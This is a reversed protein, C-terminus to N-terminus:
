LNESQSLEDDFRDYMEYLKNTTIIILSEIDEDFDISYELNLKDLQESLEDIDNSLDRKAEALALSKTEERRKENM